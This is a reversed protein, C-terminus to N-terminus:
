VRGIEVLAFLILVCLLEEEDRCIDLLGDWKQFHGECEYGEATVRILWGKEPLLFHDDERVLHGIVKEDDAIVVAKESLDYQVYGKFRDLLDYVNTRYKYSFDYLGYMVQQGSEDSLLTKRRKKLDEENFYRIM